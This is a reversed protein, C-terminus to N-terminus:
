SEEIQRRQKELKKKTKEKKVKAVRNYEYNKGTSYSPNSKDLVENTCNLVTKFKIIQFQIQVTENSKERYKLKAQAYALIPRTQLSSNQTQNPHPRVTPFPDTIFTRRPSTWTYDSLSLSKFAQTNRDIARTEHYLSTRRSLIEHSHNSFTPSNRM